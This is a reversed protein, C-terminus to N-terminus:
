DLAKIVASHKARCDRYKSIFEVLWLTIDKGQGSEIEQLEPCPTKLNAPITPSSVILKTCGTM